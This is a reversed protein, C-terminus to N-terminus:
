FLISRLSYSEYNLPIRKYTNMLIQQLHLIRSFTFEAVFANIIIQLFSQPCINKLVARSLYM